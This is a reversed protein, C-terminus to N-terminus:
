NTNINLTGELSVDYKSGSSTTFRIQDDKTGAAHPAFEIEITCTNGPTIGTACGNSTVKFSTSGTAYAVTVAGTFGENTFTIPLTRTKGPTVTGFDLATTDPVVAAAYGTTGVVIGYSGSITVTITNTQTGSSYLPKFQLQIICSNGATLGNGCTSGAITVGSGDSTATIGGLTGASINTVTITKAASGGPYNVSGFNITTPSIQIAPTTWVGRGELQIMQTNQPPTTANLTNDSIDLFGNLSGSVRPTFDLSFNCEAGPTLSFSSACDPPTGSGPVQNWNLGLGSVIKGTLTANGINEIQVSQPSDSSTSGVHASTFSLSPSQSRRLEVVLGTNNEAVFVDGTPDLAVGAPLPFEGVTIPTGGGAPVMQIRNNAYDTVYLNGVGDVALEYPSNFENGLNIQTGGGAPVEVIEGLGFDSIFVNGAADVAVARPESLGSGVTTQPGVAPLEVVRSNLYDAVFVDGAQDVALGLPTSLGSFPLTIQAGGGAPVEVVRNHNSDAIYVNAAGDVAVGQPGYLGTGVTTLTGGGSPVKVVRSNGSDAVFVNGLGDVALEFPQTFGGSLTAQPAPTFAIQPAIGIGYIPTSALLSGNQDVIQVAGNRIGSYLPAFTVNITCTTTSAYTRANCPTTYQANPKALFDLGEAGQTLVKVAGTTTGAAVNYTLTLTNSCPAPTTQGAPCVNANNFNASQTQLEIVQNNPSNAVFVDGKTDVAVGRPESIGTGLINITPNVAPIVGNVAVIEKVESNLFDGVYVNGSRDVAVGQPYSFGSGLTNITPNTAPIVGNVALIEEVGNNDCVYVNGSGDVAVSVPNSFGSGLINITPDTPIVGNVALIEKVENNGTDAVYVNGNADVAVDVPSNFGKGLGRITPNAPIVGNVALIERIRSGEAVYVNGSADVAVGNPAFGSVLINITPNNAPIVGNVALIEQVENHEFDAVFVNGAGDVAVAVPYMFGSGLTSQTSNFTVSQAHLAPAMIAASFISLSFLALLGALRSTRNRSANFPLIAAVPLYPFNAPKM